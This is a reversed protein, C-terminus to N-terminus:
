PQGAYAGQERLSKLRAADIGLVRRQLDELSRYPGNADREAIFKMAIKPGVGKLTQLEDRDATNLNVRGQARAPAVSIIFLGAVLISIIFGKL